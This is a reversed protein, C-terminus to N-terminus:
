DGIPFLIQENRDSFMNDRNVTYFDIVKDTKEKETRLKQYITHVSYYGLMMADPVVMAQINGADLAAINYDSCGIGYLHLDNEKAYDVSADLAISDLAVIMNPKDVFRFQEKLDTTTSSITWSISAGAKTLINSINDIRTKINSQDLNSVVIGVRKFRLDRGEIDFLQSTVTTSLLTDDLHIYDIDNSDIDYKSVDTLLLELKCRSAIDQVIKETNNSSIFQVIVGDAGNRIEEDILNVQDALTEMDTTNVFNVNVNDNNTSQRIGSEFRKWMDDSSNPVIVSIEYKKQTTPSNLLVAMATITLSLVIMMSIFIKNKKM